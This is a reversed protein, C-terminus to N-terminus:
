VEVPVFRAEYGHMKILQLVKAILKEKRLAHSVTCLAQSDFGNVNTMTDVKVNFIKINTYPNLAHVVLDIPAIFFGNSGIAVDPSTLMYAIQGSSFRGLVSELSYLVQAHVKRGDRTIGSYGSLDEVLSCINKQGFSNALKSGVGIRTERLGSIVITIVKERRICRVNLHGYTKDRKMLFHMLYYFHNGIRGNVVECHRSNKVYVETETILCGIFTEESLTNLTELGSKLEDVSIFVAGLTDKNTKFRFDITICANYYIPPAEEVMKRDLIIGDEVGAGHLNAFAAWCRLNWVDSSHYNAVGLIMQAYRFVKDKSTLSRERNLSNKKKRIGTTLVNASSNLLNMIMLNNLNYMFQLSNMVKVVETTELEIPAITPHPSEPTVECDYFALVKKYESLFNSTGNGHSILAADLLSTQNGNCSKIFCTTGQIMQMLSLHLTDSTLNAVSGKLNNVAVTSKASPTRRLGIPALTKVMTSFMADEKYQIKYVTTEAPSFYVDYEENYKILISAKTSILVYSCYYKTTVHPLKKKLKILDHLSWNKFCNIIFGNLILINSEKETTSISKLYLLTEQVDTEETMMTFDALTNQEGAAKLDKTNLPCYFYMADLPFSFAKSNRLTENSARNTNPLLHEVKNSRGDHLTSDYNQQYSKCWEATEYANKKSLVSYMNGSEFAESLKQCASTSQKKRRGIYSDIYKRMTAVGSILQRNKLDNIDYPCSLIVDFMRVYNDYPITEFKPEGYRPNAKHLLEAWECDDTLDTSTRSECDYTWSLRGEVYKTALGKGDVYTFWEITKQSKKGQKGSMERVHLSLADLTSVSLFIKPAGNLIIVGWLARSKRVEEEGRIMTDIYTGLMIPVSNHVLSYQKEFREAGSDLKTSEYMLCAMYSKGNRITEEFADRTRYKDYCICDHCLIPHIRHNYSCLM